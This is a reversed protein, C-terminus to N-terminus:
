DGKRFNKLERLGRFLMLSITGVLILIPVVIWIASFFIRMRQQMGPYAYGLMLYSLAAFVIGPLFVKLCFKKFLISLNRTEM